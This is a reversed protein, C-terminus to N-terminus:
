KQYKKILEMCRKTEQYSDREPHIEPIWGEYEVCLYHDIPSENICEMMEAIPFHPEEGKEDLALLKFHIYPSYPMCERFLSIPEPTPIEGTPDDCHPGLPMDPTNIRWAELDPCVTYYKNNFYKALDLAIGNCKERACEHAIPMDYKEAFPLLKEFFHIYEQTIMERTKTKLNILMPICVYSSGIESAILINKKYIELVQEESSAKIANSIETGYWTAGMKLNKNEILHRIKRIKVLDPLPHCPIYEECIDIGEAGMDATMSIIDEITAGQTFSLQQLSWTSVGITSKM